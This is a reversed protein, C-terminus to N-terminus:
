AAMCDCVLDKIISELGAVGRPLTRRGTYLSFLGWMLSVQLSSYRPAPHPSLSSPNLEGEILLRGHEQFRDYPPLCSTM